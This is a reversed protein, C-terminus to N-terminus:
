AGPSGDGRGRILADLRAVVAKMDIALSRIEESLGSGPM